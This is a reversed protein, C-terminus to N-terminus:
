LLGAKKNFNITEELGKELNYEPTFGLDDRLSNTECTWNRQKLIKYKDTNLTMPKRTLEGFFESLSCALYTIWLPIRVNLVYKKGLLRKLINTFQNDSYEDGDAVIYAKNIINEKEIASFAAKALDKVYIFTLMQPKMGSKFDFGKQVSQMEVLYDKDKPGYVGTPRLIVYPFFTQLKLFKEAELKSKGYISDPKQLDASNIPQMTKEKIPGFTSLSSMLIFKLPKCDADALSKILNSTYFSNVTYFDSEDLAKTVGANHIVYHWSGNTKSAERLQETLCKPDAYNLEILHVRKNIFNARSSTKRIGAWVEYGRELAEDLLFSGIFGSAGTILIRKNENM